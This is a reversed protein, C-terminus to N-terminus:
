SCDHEIEESNKIACSLQAVTVTNPAIYDPQLGQALLEVEKKKLNNDAIVLDRGKATLIIQIVDETPSGEKNVAKQVANSAWDASLQTTETYDFNKDLRKQVQSHLIETVYDKSENLQM